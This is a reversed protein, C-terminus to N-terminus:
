ASLFSSEIPLILNLVATLAVNTVAAINAVGAARAATDTDLAEAEAPWAIRM